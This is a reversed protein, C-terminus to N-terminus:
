KIKSIINIFKEIVDSSKDSFVEIWKLHNDKAIQRKLPDRVTWTYIARKYQPKMNSEKIWKNLIKIDDENFKDFPHKGHQWIGQIEIYLDYKKIYFDCNFPYKKSKYQYIYDINNDILYQEFEREVMTKKGFSNNEKKVKYIKDVIKGQRKRYENSQSFNKTGFREECTKELKPLYENYYRNKYEKSQTYYESGYKKFTTQKIKEVSEKSGGANEVGYKKLNNNKVLIEVDKGHLSCVNGYRKINTKQLKDVISKCHMPHESGYKKMMTEKIKQKNEETQFSNEVGYKKLCTQKYKIRVDNDKVSCDHSCHHCYGTIFNKFKCKKGCVKCHGLKLDPDDMFYHYLKQSFTFDSPFSWNNLDSYYEPFKKKFFKEKCYLKSHEKLFQFVEEKSM